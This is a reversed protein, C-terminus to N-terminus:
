NFLIRERPVGLEKAARAAIENAMEMRISVLDITVIVSVQGADDKLALSKAHIPLRVSESPQTRAAYGALWISETPTIDVAAAGAQWAAFARCTALLVTAILRRM